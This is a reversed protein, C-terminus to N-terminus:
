GFSVAMLHELSPRQDFHRWANPALSIRGSALRTQQLAVSGVIRPSQPIAAAPQENGRLNGTEPGGRAATQFRSASHHFAGDCPPMLKSPHSQGKFSLRGHM